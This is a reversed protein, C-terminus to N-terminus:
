RNLRHGLLMHQWIDPNETLNKYDATTMGLSFDNSDFSPCSALALVEGTKPNMVVVASKDDKFQEYVTQQLKSDITLKM